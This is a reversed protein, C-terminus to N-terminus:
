STSAACLTFLSGIISAPRFRGEIRVMGTTKANRQGAARTRANSSMANALAQSM